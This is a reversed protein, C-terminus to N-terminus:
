DIPNADPELTKCILKEFILGFKGIFRFIFKKVVM